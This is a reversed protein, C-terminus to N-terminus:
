AGREAIWRHLVGMYISAGLLVGQWPELRWAAPALGVLAIGAIFSAAAAPLMLATMAM